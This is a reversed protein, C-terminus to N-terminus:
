NEKNLGLHLLLIFINLISPDQQYTSLMSLYMDLYHLITNIRIEESSNETVHIYKINHYRKNKLKTYQKRTNFTFPSKTIRVGVVLIPQDQLDVVTVDWPPILVTM